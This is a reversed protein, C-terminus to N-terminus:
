GVLEGILAEFAVAEGSANAQEFYEYWGDDDIGREFRRVHDASPLKWVAYFDYGAAHSTAPDARGVGVLEVGPEALMEQLSPAIRRVYEARQNPTLALWSSKARFLEIYIHMETETRTM